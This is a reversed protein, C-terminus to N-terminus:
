DGNTWTRLYLQLPYSLRVGQISDFYDEIVGVQSVDILKWLCSVVSPRSGESENGRREIESVWYCIVRGKRKKKRRRGGMVVQSSNPPVHVSTAHPAWPRKHVNSTESCVVSLIIFFFVVLFFLIYIVLHPRLSRTSTSRGTPETQRTEVTSVVTQILEVLFLNTTRQLVKWRRSRKGPLYFIIPHM